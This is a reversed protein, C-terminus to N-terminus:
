WSSLKCNCNFTFTFFFSNGSATRNPSNKRLFYTNHKFFFQRGLGEKEGGGGAWAIHRTTGDISVRPLRGFVKRAMIAERCTNLLLIYNRVTLLLIEWDRRRRGEEEEEEWSDQTSRSTVRVVCGSSPNSKAKEFLGLPHFKIQLSPPLSVPRVWVCAPVSPAVPVILYPFFLVLRMRREWIEQLNLGCALPVPRCVSCCKSGM